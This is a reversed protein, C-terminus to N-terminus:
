HAKKTTQEEKFFLVDLIFTGEKNWHNFYEPEMKTTLPTELIEIQFHFSFVSLLQMVQLGHCVVFDFKKKKKM